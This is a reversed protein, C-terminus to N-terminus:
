DKIQMNFYFTPNEISTLTVVDPALESRYSVKYSNQNLLNIFETSNAVKTIVLLGNSTADTLSINFHYGGNADIEPNRVYSMEGTSGSKLLILRDNDSQLDYAFRIGQLKSGKSKFYKDYSTKFANYADNFAECSDDGMVMEWKLSRDFFLEEYNDIPLRFSYRDNGLGGSETFSFEYMEIEDGEATLVSFPSSFRIGDATVIYNHSRVQTIADGAKPYVSMKGDKSTAVYEAGSEKDTIILEPFYPSFAATENAKVAALYAAEDTDEPLKHMYVNFGYKKGLLRIVNPDESTMVQFEYDGEHGFGTEDIPEDGRDPNTPQNPGTIDAPDSFIHFISNYTNFTLVTGNDSIVDWLSREQKFKNDIWKHNASIEVSGNKDFRFLMVYGPEDENSFYEMAWLGGDATLKQKADKRGQELREAASGEFVLDETNDCSSFALAILPLIFLSKKM